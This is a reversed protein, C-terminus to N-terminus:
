TVDIETIFLNTPELRVLARGLTEDMFYCNRQEPVRFLHPADAMREKKFAFTRVSLVDKSPDDDLYSIDSRSRDVCDFTGIPNVIWYDKSLLDGGHDLLTFPLYEIEQGRCAEEVVEKCRTDFILLGQTNALFSTLVLGPCDDQLQITADDPYFEGVRRGRSLYFTKLKLGSPDKTVVVYEDFKRQDGLREIMFYRM